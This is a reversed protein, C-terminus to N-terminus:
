QDSIPVDDFPGTLSTIYSIKKVAAPPAPYKAWWLWTDGPQLSAYVDGVPNVAPALATRAEDRLVFYKKDEAIVYFPDFNGRAVPYFSIAKTGTNRFRIQVTLVGDKRRCETLEAVVGAVNTERVRPADPAPATAKPQEKKSCGTMPLFLGCLLLVSVTLRLPM